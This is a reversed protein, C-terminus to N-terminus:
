LGRIVVLETSTFATARKFKGPTLDEHLTFWDYDGEDGLPEYLSKHYIEVGNVTVQIQEPTKGNLLPNTFEFEGDDPLTALDNLPNGIRFQLSNSGAICAKITSWLIKYWQGGYHAFLVTADLPCPNLFNTINILESPVVVIPDGPAPPVLTYYEAMSIQVIQGSLLGQNINSNVNSYDLIGAPVTGNIHFNLREDHYETATGLRIYILVM